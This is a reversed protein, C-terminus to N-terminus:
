PPGQGEADLILRARLDLSTAVGAATRAVPTNRGPRSDGCGLEVLEREDFDRLLGPLGTAEQLSRLGAAEVGAPAAPVIYPKTSTRTRRAVMALVILALMVALILATVISSRAGALVLTLFIVVVASHAITARGAAVSPTRTLRRAAADGDDISARVQRIAATAALDQM